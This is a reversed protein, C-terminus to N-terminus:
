ASPRPQTDTVFRVAAAHIQELEPPEATARAFKLFDCATLFDSLNRQHSEDLRGSTRAEALFEETSRRPALLSFRRELYRRVVGSVAIAYARSSEKTMQGRLKQLEALADEQAAQIVAPSPPFGRRARARLWLIFGALILVIGAIALWQLRTLPQPAELLRLDDIINTPSQNM